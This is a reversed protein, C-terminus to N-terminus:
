NVVDHNNHMSSYLVNLPKMVFCNIRTSLILFTNLLKIPDSITPILYNLSCTLLPAVLKHTRM